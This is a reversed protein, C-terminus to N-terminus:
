WCLRWNLLFHLYLIRSQLISTLVCYSYPLGVLVLLQALQHTNLLTHQVAHSLVSVLSAIVAPATNVDTVYARRWATWCELTLSVKSHQVYQCKRYIHLRPKSKKIVDRTKRSSWSLKEQGRHWYLCIIQLLLVQIYCPQCTGCGNLLRQWFHFCRVPIDIHLRRKLLVGVEM